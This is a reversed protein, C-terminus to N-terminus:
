GFLPEMIMEVFLYTLIGIAFAMIVMIYVNAMRHRRREKEDYYLFAGCKICRLKNLTLTMTHGCNCVVQKPPRPM